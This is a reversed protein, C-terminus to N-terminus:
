IETPQQGNLGDRTRSQLNRDPGGLHNSHVGAFVSIVAEKKRGKLTCLCDLVSESPWKGGRGEERPYLPDSMKDRVYDM